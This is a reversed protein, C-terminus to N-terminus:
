RMKNKIRTQLLYGIGTIVTLVIFMSLARMLDGSAISDGAALSTILAPSRAISTVIIFRHMKIKTLAFLYTLADKPLGPIFFLIIALKELKNEDQLFKFKEIESKKVFIAVAKQGYRSVLYFVTISALVAGGLCIGLGGWLGFIAGAAMQIPGGPIVAIVIQLYQVAFLVLWGAVGISSLRSQFAALKLPDNLSMVWITLIVTIFLMALTFFVIGAIRLKKQICPM